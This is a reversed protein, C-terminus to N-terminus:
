HAAVIIKEILSTFYGGMHPGVWNMTKVEDHDCNAYHADETIYGVYNGNFSTIMLNLGKQSALQDLGYNISLEGSYDCPMGVLLMSGVRLAKINAKLPGFAMNFVYDRVGIGDELRLQSPPLEVELDLGGLITSTDQQIAMSDKLIRDALLHGVKDIRMHGKPVDIDINHSGVMGAAYMAFDIEDHRMLQDTLVGPYDRSLEWSDADLNTAHGSFTVLLGKQGDSRQITLIRLFPDKKGREPALRNVVLENVDIKQYSLAAELMSQEAHAVGELIIDAMGQIIEDDYAGFAFEGAASQEWNGFGHHTHSATLYIQEKSYRLEPLKKELLQQLARPFMLLDISIIIAKMEQNDFILINAYLSDLVSEYPGRPGYGAMQMPKMPTINRRSWGAELTEGVSTKMSVTDFRALTRKIEAYDIIAQRNIPKLILAALIILMM